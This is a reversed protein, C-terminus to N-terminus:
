WYTRVQNVVAVTRVSMGLREAIADVNEFRGPQNVLMTRISPVLDSGAPQDALVQECFSQCVSATM